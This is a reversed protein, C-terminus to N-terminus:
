KDKLAAVGPLVRGGLFELSAGGGTSIHTIANAMGSKRIASISDGGGVITTGHVAAVAHALANTGAAFAAIEFVGMPGNWIVTKADHLLSEYTAITKPGIDVGMRDGIAPDDMALVEYSADAAIRDTVVHDVPLALEVGKAAADATITRAAELKDDEVLSRGIAIGRSKIFTYAMAGGIILRDVKGLMNEIVELKDSVKAGGLIAVFPREPSELTHGLYRLEQEMLLGAAPREFCHTIGEVSAHARHAAGFADNVYEDACEALQKSFTEDNQEEGAHFRLNELLVVGNDRRAAEIARVVDPGICDAAFVVRRGLLTSLPGVLPELSYEKDATGKPRGLHSALIPLAGADLAFRITPLTATIRTDDLIVGNKLPVNFDVRLFVRRGQLNLDRISLKAM